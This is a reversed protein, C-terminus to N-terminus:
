KTKRPAESQKLVRIDSEATDLRFQLLTLAGSLGNQTSDKVKM